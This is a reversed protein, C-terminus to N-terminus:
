AGTDELMVYQALAKRLLYVRRLNYYWSNWRTEQPRPIVLVDVRSASPLPLPGVQDDSDYEEVTFEVTGAVGPESRAM